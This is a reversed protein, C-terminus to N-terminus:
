AISKTSTVKTACCPRPALYHRQVASQAQGERCKAHQKAVHEDALLLDAGVAVEVQDLAHAFPAAGLLADDLVQPALFLDLELTVEVTQGTRCGPQRLTRHDERQDVLVARRNQGGPADPRRQRELPQPTLGAAARHDLVQGGLSAEAERQLAGAEQGHQV